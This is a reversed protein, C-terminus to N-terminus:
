NPCVQNLSFILSHKLLADIATAVSSTQSDTVAKSTESRVFSSSWFSTPKDNLRISHCIEHQYLKVHPKLMVVEPNFDLCLILKTICSALKIASWVM